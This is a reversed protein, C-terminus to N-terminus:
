EPPLSPLVAALEAARRLLYDPENRGPDAWVEELLTQLVRAVQPGFGVLNRIVVASIRLQTRDWVGGTAIETGLPQLAPDGSALVLARGPAGIASLFRRLELQGTGVRRAQNLLAVAQVIARPLRLQRLETALEPWDAPFLRALRAERTWPWVKPLSVGPLYPRLLGSTVLDAAAQSTSQGLIRWAEDRVREPALGALSGCASEFAKRTAEEWTLNLEGALRVGRFLRLPDERFRDVPEGVARLLRRALDRRGGFPDIWEGARDLAMANITFDRRALDTKIATTFIVRDPHRHDLYRGERRLTTVEVVGEPAVVTVTGYKLGTPRATPFLALVAEPRAATGLDYDAPDRGLYLDRPGGGVLYTRYSATELHDWIRDIWSPLPPEAM